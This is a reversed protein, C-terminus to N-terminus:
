TCYNCNVLMILPQVIIELFGVMNFHTHSEFMPSLEVEPLWWAVCKGSAIVDTSDTDNTAAVSLICIAACINGGHSSLPYHLQGPIQPTAWVLSGPCYAIVEGPLM